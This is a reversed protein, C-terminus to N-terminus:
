SNHRGPEEVSVRIAKRIASVLDESDFPKQLFHESAVPQKRSALASRDYGSMFLVPLTPRLVHVRDMLEKGSMAPMVVDTILLDVRETLGKMLEICHEGSEVAIVKYGMGCMTSEISRRVMANDEVLLITEKMTPSTNRSAPSHSAPTLSRPEVPSGNIPLYISFTAGRGPQSEAHISGHHLHVIFDVASLGLGAGCSPVKTTVFPEFAHALLSPEMGRGNDRIRLCVWRGQPVNGTGGDGDIKDMKELGITLVGGAPMADQANLTLEMLAHEIQRRDVEVNDPVGELATQLDIDPRLAARLTPLCDRVVLGLNATYLSLKRKPDLTMLRQAFQRAADTGERICNVRYHLSSSGEIEETLLTVNGLVPTLLMNFDHAIRTALTGGHEQVTGQSPWTPGTAQHWVMFLYQREGASVPLAVVTRVLKMLGATRHRAVWPQPALVVDVEQVEHAASMVLTSDACTTLLQDVSKGIADQASIGFLLQATQNWSRIQGVADCVFAAISGLGGNPNLAREPADRDSDKGDSNVAFRLIGNDPRIRISPYVFAPLGGYATAAM